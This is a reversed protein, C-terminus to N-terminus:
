LIHESTALYSSERLVLLYTSRLRRRRSPFKQHDSGIQYPKLKNKIRRTNAAHVAGTRPNDQLRTGVTAADPASSSSTLSILDCSLCLSSLSLSFIAGLGFARSSAFLRRAADAIVADDDVLLVLLLTFTM